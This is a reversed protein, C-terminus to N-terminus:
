RCTQRFRQGSLPSLTCPQRASSPAAVGPHSRRPSSTGLTYARTCMRGDGAGAVDRHDHSRKAPDGFKMENLRRVALGCTAGAQQRRRASPRASARETLVAQRARLKEVAKAWASARAEM